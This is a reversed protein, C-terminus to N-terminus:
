MRPCGARRLFGRWSKIVAARPLSGTGGVAWPPGLLRRVTSAWLWCSDLRAVAGAPKLM